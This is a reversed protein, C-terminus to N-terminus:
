RWISGRGLTNPAVNRGFAHAYSDNNAGMDINWQNENTLTALQVDVHDNGGLTYIDNNGNQIIVKDGKHGGIVSNDEANSNLAVTRGNTEFGNNGMYIENSDGDVQFVTTINGKLFARIHHDVADIFNYSTEQMSNLNGATGSDGSGSTLVGDKNYIKFTQPSTFTTSDTGDNAIVTLQFPTSDIISSSIGDDVFTFTFSSGTQVSTASNSTLGSQTVVGLSYTLADGDADVFEQSFDYSWTTNELAAFFQVPAHSTLTPALNAEEVGGSVPTNETTVLPLDLNATISKLAVHKVGAKSTTNDAISDIASKLDTIAAKAAKMDVINLTDAGKGNMLKHAVDAIKHDKALKTDTVSTDTKAEDLAPKDAVTGDTKVDSKTNDKPADKADVDDKPVDLEPQDQPQTPELDQGADQISSFLSGSVGSVGKFNSSVQKASLQGMENITGESPMFQATEFQNALTVENGNFDRLVIAGEVVTIEGNDVNGAIITGRIGISGMPTDINVDDPDERGILGSTFVFLGKLVSFDTSGENTAPDFVYEDISLRSDESM